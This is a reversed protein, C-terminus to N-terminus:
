RSRRRVHSPRRTQRRARRRAKAVLKTVKDICRECIVRVNSGIFIRKSTQPEHCFVCHLVRPKEAEAKRQEREAKLDDQHAKLRRCAEMMDDETWTKKDALVDLVQRGTQRLRWPESAQVRRWYQIQDVMTQSPQWAAKDPKPKTRTALGARKRRMYDRMYATKAEGKLM